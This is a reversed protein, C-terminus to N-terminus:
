SKGHYIEDLKRLKELKKLIAKIREDEGYNEIYYAVLISTVIDPVYGHEKEAILRAVEFMISQMDNIVFDFSYRQSLKRSHLIKHIRELKGIDKVRWTNKTQGGNAKEIVGTMVLLPIINHFNRPKHKLQRYKFAKRGKSCRELLEKFFLKYDEVLNHKMIFSAVLEYDKSM